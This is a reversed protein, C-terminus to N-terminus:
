VLWAAAVQQAWTGVLSTGQGTFYLRYNRHALARFPPRPHM